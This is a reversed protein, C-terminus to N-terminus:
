VNSDLHPKAAPNVSSSKVGYDLVFTSITMNLLLLFLLPSDFTSSLFSLSCFDLEQARSHGSM